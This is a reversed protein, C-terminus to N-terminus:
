TTKEAKPDPKVEPKKGAKEEELTKAKNANSPLQGFKPMDMLLNPAQGGNSMLFQPFRGDWIKLAEKQLELQKLALYATPNEQLKKLEYAKADAITKIATSEGEAVAMKKQAEGEGLAKMALKRQNAAAIEAQAVDKDMQAQFVKDIATQINPNDYKLGGSMAITTITVGRTKFFSIVDTEVAKLMEGKKARLENLEFGNCFEQLDKQCRARVETDMVEALSVKKVEYDDKYSDNLKILEIKGAPYNFLFLIADKNDLIRATISLNTSFNISDKSELQISQNATSTGSHVDGTWERTVPDRDVLILRENPFYKGNSPGRGLDVWRYTIQVRRNGIMSEELLKETLVTAQKQDGELKIFFPTVSSGWEVYVPKDYAGCGTLCLCALLLLKKM